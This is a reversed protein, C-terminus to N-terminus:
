AVEDEFYAPEPEFDWAELYEEYSMMAADAGAADTQGNCYSAALLDALPTAIPESTRGDWVQTYFPIDEGRAMGNEPPPDDTDIHGQCVPDLYTITSM